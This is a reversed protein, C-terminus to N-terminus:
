RVVVTPEGLAEMAEHYWRVFREEFSNRPLQRSVEPESGFPLGLEGPVPRELDVAGGKSKVKQLQVKVM